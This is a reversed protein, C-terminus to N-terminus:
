SSGMAVEDCQDHFLGNFLFHTQSTAFTFLKGINAKRIPFAPSHKFITDVAREITESLSINTFLSEVYFSILFKNQLQSSTFENM